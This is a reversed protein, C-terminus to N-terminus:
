RKLNSFTIVQQQHLSKYSPNLDCDSGRADLYNLSLKQIHCIDPPYLKMSQSRSWSHTEKCPLPFLLPPHIWKKSTTFIFSLNLLFLPSHSLLFVPFCLLFICFWSYLISHHCSSFSCFFHHLSSMVHLCLPFDTHFGLSSSFLSPLISNPFFFPPPVPLFDPHFFRPLFSLFIFFDLLRSPHSSPLANFHSCLSSYVACTIFHLNSLVCVSIIAFSTLSFLSFVPSLM